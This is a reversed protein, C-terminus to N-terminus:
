IIITLDVMLRSRSGISRVTYDTGNTEDLDFTTLLDGMRPDAVGRYIETSPDVFISVVRTMMMKLDGSETPLEEVDEAGVLGTLIVRDGDAPLYHVIEGAGRMNFPASRRAFTTFPSPM